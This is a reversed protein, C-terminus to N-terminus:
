TLQLGLRTWIAGLVACSLLFAIMRHLINNYTTHVVAHLLRFFVYLWALTLHITDAQQLVYVALLSVYFLPPMELLNDYHQTVRQLQESPKGGKNLRFYGISLEGRRVARIRLALMWLAMAFTLAIMTLLPYFLSSPTM